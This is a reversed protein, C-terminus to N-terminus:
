PSLDEFAVPEPVSNSVPPISMLYAYMGRLERDSKAGYVFWPMPPLIDRGGAEGQHKGDRMADMFMQETWSGIGTEMDPTLNPAISIGWPGGWATFQNNPSAGWGNPDAPDIEAPISDPIEVEEPHGALWRSEDFQVMCGGPIAFVCERAEVAEMGGGPTKPTHCDPCASTAVISRGLEIMAEPSNDEVPAPAQVVPQQCATLLMAAAIVGLLGRIFAM